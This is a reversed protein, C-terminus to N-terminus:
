MQKCQKTPLGKVEYLFTRSSVYADVFEKKEWYKWVDKLLDLFVGFWRILWYMINSKTVDNQQYVYLKVYCHQQLCQKNSLAKLCGEGSWFTMGFCKILQHSKNSRNVNNEKNVNTCLHIVEYLFTEFFCPYWSVKGLAKM